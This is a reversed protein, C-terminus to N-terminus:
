TLRFSGLPKVVISIKLCVKKRSELLIYSFEKKIFITHYLSFNLRKQDRCERFRTPPGAFSKLIHNYLELLIYIHLDLNEFKNLSLKPSLPLLFSAHFCFNFFTIEQKMNQRSDAAYWISNRTENVFIKYNSKTFQSATM